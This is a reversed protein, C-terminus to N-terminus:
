QLQKAASNNSKIIAAAEEANKYGPIYLIKEVIGTFKESQMAKGIATTLIAKIDNPIDKRGFVVVYNDISIDWGQEGLTPAEPASKQRESTLAALVKMRGAKVYTQHIGGSFGFDVHGGLVSSMIAAGGKTPVPLIPVGTQKTIARAIAMDFPVMSAYRLKENNKKAWEIAERITNYPKDPLAVFADQAQGGAGFYYFDDTTYKSKLAIPNYALMMSPIINLTYGDAAASKTLTAALNGGGGPKNQVIVPQGLEKTMEEALIRGITDFGGGARFGVFLQIPKTPFENATGLIPMLTICILITLITRLRM